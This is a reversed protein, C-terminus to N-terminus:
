AACGREIIDAADERFKMFIVFSVGQVPFRQFKVPLEEAASLAKVNFRSPPIGHRAGSRLGPLM